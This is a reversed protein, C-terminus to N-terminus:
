WSVACSPVTPVRKRASCARRIGACTDVAAPERQNPSATYHSRAPNASNQINSNLRRAFELGEGQFRNGIDYVFKISPLEVNKRAATPSNMESSVAFSNTGGALKRASVLTAWDGGRLSSRSGSIVIASSISGKCSAAASASGCSGLIQVPRPPLGNAQSHGLTGKAAIVQSIGRRFYFGSIGVFLTHLPASRM